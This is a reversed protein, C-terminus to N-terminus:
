ERENKIECGHQNRYGLRPRSGDLCSGMIDSGAAAAQGEPPSHGSGPILGRGRPPTPEPLSRLPTQSSPLLCEQPPVIRTHAHTCPHVPREGPTPSAEVGSAPQVWLGWPLPKTLAPEATTCVETCTRPLWLCAPPAPVLHGTWGKEPFTAALAPPPPGPAAQDRSLGARGLLGRPLQRPDWLNNEEHRGNLM